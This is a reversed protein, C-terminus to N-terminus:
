RKSIDIKRRYGNALENFPMVIKLSGDEFDATILEYDVDSPINIRNTLCPVSTEQEFDMLQYIFLNNKNIEVSFLEPDVGPVHMTFLYHDENKKFSTSALSMGGNLVSTVKGTQALLKTLSKETKM